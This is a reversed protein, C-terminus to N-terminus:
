IEKKDTNTLYEFNDQVFQQGEFVMDPYKTMLQKIYNEDGGNAEMFLISAIIQLWLEDEQRDKFLMKFLTITALPSTKLAYPGDYKYYDFIDDSLDDSYPGHTYWRFAYQFNLGMRSLIYITKQIVTFNTLNGQDALDLQKLILYLKEIRTIM